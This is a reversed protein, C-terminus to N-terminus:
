YVVTAFHYLSACAILTPACVSFLNMCVYVHLKLICIKINFCGTVVSPKLEHMVTVNCQEATSVCSCLVVHM